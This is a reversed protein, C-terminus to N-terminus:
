LLPIGEINNVIWEPNKDRSKKIYVRANNFTLYNGKKYNGTDRMFELTISTVRIVYGETGMYQKNGMPITSINGIMLNRVIYHRKEFHHIIVAEATDKSPASSCAALILLLILSILYKQSGKSCRNIFRRGKRNM